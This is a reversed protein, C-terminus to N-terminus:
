AAFMRHRLEIPRNVSLTNLYSTPPRHHDLLIPIRCALSTPRANGFIYMSLKYRMDRAVVDRGM